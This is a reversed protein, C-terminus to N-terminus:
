SERRERRQNYMASGHLYVLNNKGLRKGPRSDRCYRLMGTELSVIHSVVQYIYSVRLFCLRDQKVEVSLGAKKGSAQLTMAMMAYLDRHADKKWLDRSSAYESALGREKM